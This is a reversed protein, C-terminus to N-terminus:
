TGTKDAQLETDYTQMSEFPRPLCPTQTSASDKNSKEASEGISAYIEIEYLTGMRFLLLRFPIKHTYLLIFSMTLHRFNRKIIGLTTYVQAKDIKDRPRVKLPTSRRGHRASM